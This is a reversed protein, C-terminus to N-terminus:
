TRRELGTPFGSSPGLQSRPSAGSWARTLCSSVPHEALGDRILREANTHGQDTVVFAVDGHDRHETISLDGRAALAQIDGISADVQRDPLGRHFLTTGDQTSSTFFDDSKADDAEALAVLLDNRRKTSSM